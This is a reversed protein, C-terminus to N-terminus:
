TKPKSNETTPEANSDHPFRSAMPVPRCKTNKLLQQTKTLNHTGFQQRMCLIPKLRQTNIMVKALRSTHAECVIRQNELLQVECRQAHYKINIVAGHWFFFCSKLPIFFSVSCEQSSQGAGSPSVELILARNRVHHSARPEIILVPMVPKSSHDPFGLAQLSAYSKM